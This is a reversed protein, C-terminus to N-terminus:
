FRETFHNWIARDQLSIYSFQVAVDDSWVWHRAGFVTECWKIHISCSRSDLKKEGQSVLNTRTKFGRSNQSYMKLAKFTRSFREEENRARSLGQIKESGGKWDKFVETFIILWELLTMCVHHATPDLIAVQEKANNERPMYTVSFSGSNYQWVIEMPLNQSTFLSSTRSIEFQRGQFDKFLGQIKPRFFHM